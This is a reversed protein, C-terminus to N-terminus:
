APNFAPEGPLCSYQVLDHRGDARVQAGRAVGERVFGARELSRQEAINAVDTSAQVRHVGGRHLASALLSQAVAGIGRGRVDAHLSLGISIARSGLNPGHLESHWSMDGVPIWAEDSGGLPRIEVLARDHADEEFHIDFVGWDDYESSSDPRLEGDVLERLRVLDGAPTTAQVPLTVRPLPPEVAM